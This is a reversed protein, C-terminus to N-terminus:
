DVHVLLDSVKREQAFEATVRRNEARGAETANDAIPHDEGGSLLDIRTEEYGRAAMLLGVSWARGLGMLRNAEASGVNDTHGTLRVRGEHANAAMIFADFGDVPQAEWSDYAFQVPVRMDGTASVGPDSTLGDDFRRQVPTARAAKTVPAETTVPGRSREAAQEARDILNSGSRSPMAAPESAAVAPKEPAADPMTVVVEESKALRDAVDASSPLASTLWWLGGAALLATGALGAVLVCLVALLMAPLLGPGSPEDVEDRYGAFPDDKPRAMRQPPPDMTDLREEDVEAVAPLVLPAPEQTVVDPNRVRQFADLLAESFGAATPYRHEPHKAMANALVEYLANALNPHQPLEQYLHGDRAQHPSLGFPPSGAGLSYLLAAVAYVDSRADGRNGNLREPSAFPLAEDRLVSLDEPFDLIVTGWEPTLHLSHIGLNGHFLGHAHAHDLAQLLDVGLIVLQEAPVHDAGLNRLVSSLAEGEGPDLVSAFWSGICGQDTFQAIGPHDLRADHQSAGPQFRVLVEHGTEEDLGDFVALDPGREVLQGLRFRGGVRTGDRLTLYRQGASSIPDSADLPLQFM